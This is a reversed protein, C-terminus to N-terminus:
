EGSGGELGTMADGSGKMEVRGGEAKGTEQQEATAM